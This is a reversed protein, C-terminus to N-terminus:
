SINLNLVCDWSNSTTGYLLNALILQISKDPIFPLIDMCDANFLASNDDSYIHIVQSKM